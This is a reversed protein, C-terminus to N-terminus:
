KIAGIIPQERTYFPRELSVRGLKGARFEDLLIISAKDTDRQGGKKIFGRKEAIEGLIKETDKLDNLIIKYRNELVAPNIELIISILRRALGQADLLEDKIAGTLALKMGTDPDDFKHWLIGPTDILWFNVGPNTKIWATQRTVGPRDEVRAIARGAFANILTSKGVNPIGVVMAKIPTNIRGKDRMAAHKKATLRVAAEIIVNIGDKRLLNCLVPSNGKFYQTWLKSVGEDALDAKAMAIIRPKDFSEIDPNRSSQPIRADLLEILLDVRKINEALLRKTKAMHGPYWQINM